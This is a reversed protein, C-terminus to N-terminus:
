PRIQPQWQLWRNNLEQALKFKQGPRAPKQLPKKDPTAFSIGGKLIAELSEAKLSAGTIGVDMNFGSAQWFVTNRRVLHQYKPEILVTIEVEDGFYGIDFHSVQGVQVQRYYVPSGLSLSGARPATLVLALGQESNELPPKDLAQFVTKRHGDGPTAAIYPGALVTDLHKAGSLGLEATVLWFASGAKSFMAAFEEKLQISARVKQTKKDLRLNAIEGIVLGKHKVKTGETMGAAHEFSVAITKIVQTAAQYDPFLPYYQGVKPATKNLNDFAIGGAAIALLSETQVEIGSLGGSVKIGSVDWFVTKNNILHRYQGDIYLEIVVKGARNLYYDNVQGVPLKKFYVPSGQTVSSMTSALLQIKLPKAFAQKGLKALALDPYLRYQKAREGEAQNNPNYFAIGGQLLSSLPESTLEMGKISAKVSIGGVKYFRSSGAVLDAYESLISLKILVKDAGEDLTIHTIEGVPLRRYFVKDGRKIASADEAQLTVAIAHKDTGEAALVAFTRMPRGDAPAFGIFNGKVLNGLNKVGGFGIEAREVWFKANDSLQSAFMPEIVAFATFSQAKNVKVETIKGAKFGKYIIPTGAGINDLKSLKLQVKAGRGAANVDDYFKFLFNAPAKIGDKPSDFAIAGSIISALSETNVQLGNFSFDARIGSVNWFRTDQKVLDAYKTDINLHIEVEQADRVLRFDYVEGVQIKKYYVPSGVSVSGMDKALLKVTLGQEPQILPQEDAAVFRRKDAGMGPQMNIYSGSFLTELGSIGTLSAKPKVLWFQSGDKLMHEAQKDIEVHVYVGQIDEDLKIAKVKGVAVGQYRVQTKGVLIGNANAFHITIDTGANAYHKYLLWAGLILALLPLFWIASIRNSQKIAPAPPETNGTM